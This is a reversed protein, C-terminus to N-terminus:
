LAEDHDDNMMLSTSLRSLDLVVWDRGRNGVLVCVQKGSRGGVNMRQPAFGGEAPFTHVAIADANPDMTHLMLASYHEDEYRVLSLICRHFEPFLKADLIQGAKSFPRSIVNTIPSPQPRDPTLLSSQAFSLRTKTVSLPPLSVQISTLHTAAKSSKGPIAVIQAAAPSSTSVESPKLLAMDTATLGEGLPLTTRHPLELMRSQWATIKGLAIRIHGHLVAATAPLNLSAPSAASQPRDDRARTSWAKEDALVAETAAQFSLQKVFSHATFDHKSMQQQYEPRTEVYPALRSRGMTGKIYKSILSYDLSPVEREEVEIAGSSFPEATGIEIEMKLWKSFARFQKHEAMVISSCQEALVRLSDVALLVNTFIEPACDFKSSGEHFAAQGRLECVTITFRELAPLLNIFLHHQINTYMSGVATDWRKHNNDQVIDTLWELMPANFEGTMALHYLSLRADGEDSESESLMESLSKTLRAPFQLGTSFDHEICRITHRVYDLLNQMRKTNTAIVHLLPGGLTALPLRVFDVRLLSEDERSLIVHYSSQHHSAHLTSNLGIRCSGIKVTEDLLVQAVGNTQCVILAEVSGTGTQKRTEFIEDVAVLTAFKNGAPGAKALSMGHAPIASLRPLIKTVDLSTIAGPLSDANREFGSSLSASKDDSPRVVLDDLLLEKSKVRDNLQGPTGHQAWSFQCVAESM